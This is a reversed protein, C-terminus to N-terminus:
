KLVQFGITKVGENGSVWFRYLGREGSNESPFELRNILGLAKGAGAPTESGIDYVNEDNWVIETGNVM